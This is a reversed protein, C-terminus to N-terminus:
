LSEDYVDEIDKELLESYQVELKELVKKAVRIERLREKIEETAIEIKESTLEDKAQEVLEKLKM